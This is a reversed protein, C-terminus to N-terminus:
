MELTTGFHAEIAENDLGLAELLAREKNAAYRSVCNRFLERYDPHDACFLPGKISTM